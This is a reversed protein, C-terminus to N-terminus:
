SIRRLLRQQGTQTNRQMGTTVLESETADSITCHLQCHERGSIRRTDQNQISNVKGGTGGFEKDDEEMGRYATLM